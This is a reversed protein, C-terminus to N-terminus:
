GALLKMRLLRARCTAYLWGRRPDAACNTLTDEPTRRFGLLKGDPSVVHIGPRTDLTESTKRTAHLGAAIMLRGDPIVCMGDGSRGPYFDILVRGETLEGGDGLRYARVDRHRDADGHAEILYFRGGDPSVALGNPMHIDPWHLVQHLRGDPDLRYVANVNGQEPDAAGPRSSFFLRGDNTLCLDNPPALPRGRYEDALVQIKGTELDTRTVRHAGGECALLRGQPDFLLGNAKNSNERFVEARGTKPDWVWIKEAPVNTFFVRGDPAVAPGETFVQQDDVTAVTEVPGLHADTSLNEYRGERSQSGRAGGRPATVLGAAAAAVFQRRTWVM